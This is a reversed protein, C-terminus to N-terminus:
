VRQSPDGDVGMPSPRLDREANGLEALQAVPLPKVPLRLRYYGVTEIDTELSQALVRAVTGGCMRGQCQGMGCRSFSKLQNIDTFGEAVFARLEGATVEECRCAIAEDALRRVAETPRYTSDLFARFRAERQLHRREPLAREDREARSIRGIRCAADLAALRGRHAAARAGSIGAGDGAVAVLETSTAGWEDTWPRWAMQATDWVHRCRLSATIQNNPVVGEHLLLLSAPLRQRKGRTEFSVAEVRSIGEVALNRGSFVPIRAKRLAAMWSLGKLLDRGFGSLVPLAAFGTEFLGKQSTDIVASLPAGAKMVQLAVLYALPGSGAIVTPEEPVLGSAKMLTQAAGAGMVGPLTWGPIPVPREMAGTALIVRGARTLYARGKQSVGLKGAASIQWVASLPEYAAGSRRFREVLALGKAYDAGLINSLADHKRSNAEINRYIQGGPTPQEDFLITEVGLEAALAAAALGAPGGGVIALECHTRPADTM